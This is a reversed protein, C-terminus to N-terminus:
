KLRHGCTMPGAPWIYKSPTHQVLIYPRRGMVSVNMENMVSYMYIQRVKM